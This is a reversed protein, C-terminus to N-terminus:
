ITCVDIYQKHHLNYFWMPDIQAQKECYKHWGRTDYLAHVKVNLGMSKAKSQVFYPIRKNEVMLHLHLLHRGTGQVEYGKALTLLEKNKEELFSLGEEITRRDASFDTQNNCTITVGYLPM